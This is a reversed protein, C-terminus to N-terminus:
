EECPDIFEGRTGINAQIFNERHYMAGRHRVVDDGERIESKDYACWGIIQREVVVNKDNEEDYFDQM